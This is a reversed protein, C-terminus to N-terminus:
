SFFKQVGFDLLAVVGGDDIGSDTKSEVSHKVFLNLKIHPALFSKVFKSDM